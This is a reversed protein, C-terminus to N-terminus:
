DGLFFYLVGQKGNSLEVGYWLMENDCDPELKAGKITIKDGKKLNIKPGNWDPEFVVPIEKFEKFFAERDDSVTYEKGFAETVENENFVLKNNRIDYWGTCIDPKIFGALSYWGILRGKGDALGPAVAGLSVVSGNMYRFYTYSPDDSPGNDFVAIEKYKDRNDLDMIYVRGDQPNEFQMICTKGNVSVSSDSTDGYASFIKCSISDAQGDGDLDFNGKIMYSAQDGEGTKSSTLTREDFFTDLKRFESLDISGMVQSKDVVKKETQEAPERVKDKGADKKDSSVPSGCSSAMTMILLAVLVAYRRKVISKGM